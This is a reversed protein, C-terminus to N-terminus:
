VQTLTVTPKAGDSAGNLYAYLNSEKNNKMLDWAREMCAMSCRFKNGEAFAHGNVMKILFDKNFSIISEPTLDSNQVLAQVYRGNNHGGSYSRNVSITEGGEIFEHISVGVDRTIRGVLAAVGHAFTPFVATHNGRTAQITSTMGYLRSYHGRNMSGPNRVRDGLAANDDFIPEVYTTQPRLQTANKIEGILAAGTELLSELQAAKENIMQEKSQETNNM